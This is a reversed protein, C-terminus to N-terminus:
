PTTGADDRPGGQFRRRRPGALADPCTGELLVCGRARLSCAAPDLHPRTHSQGAQGAGASVTDAAPVARGGPLKRPEEAGWDGRCGAPRPGGLSWHGEEGAPPAWPAPGPGWRAGLGVSPSDAGTGRGGTLGAACCEVRAGLRWGARSLLCSKLWPYGCGAWSM